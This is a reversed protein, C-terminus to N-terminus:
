RRPKWTKRYEEDRDGTNERARQFHYAYSNAVVFRSDKVHDKFEMDMPEPFHEDLCFGGNDIYWQKRWASPSYWGFGERYPEREQREKAYEEFAKRDFTEATMGFNKTINTPSVGIIGPEILELCIWDGDAKLVNENWNYSLVVDTSHWLIYEYQAQRILWDLGTYVLDHRPTSAVYLVEYPCTTNEKIM